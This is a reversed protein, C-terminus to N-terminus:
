SVLSLANGPIWLLSWTPVIYRSYTHTNQPMNAVPMKIKKHNVHHANIPLTSQHGVFWQFIPFYALKSTSQGQPPSPFPQPVSPQFSNVCLESILSCVDALIFSALVPATDQILKLECKYQVRRIDVGFSILKIVDIAERSRAVYSM